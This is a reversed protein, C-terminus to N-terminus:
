VIYEVCIQMAILIKCLIGLYILELERESGFYFIKAQIPFKNDLKTNM